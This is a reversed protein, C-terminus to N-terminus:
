RIEIDFGTAVKSEKKNFEVQVIKNGKKDLRILKGNTDIDYDNLVNKFGRICDESHTTAFVQIDLEETLLFIMKWLQEQVTHHLSNEFEDILLIRGEGKVKIGPSRENRYGEIFAIRKINPEVIKLAQLNRETDNEEKQNFLGQQKLQKLLVDFQGFTAYLEIAELITSKGTNNKGPILNVRELSKIKFNELNKFSRIFLSSLM